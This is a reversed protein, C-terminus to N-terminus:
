CSKTCSDILKPNIRHVSDISEDLLLQDGVDNAYLIVTLASYLGLFRAYRWTEADVKGYKELFLEHCSSPYFSWIVSLDISRNNIGVDGWDIIGTLQGNNFMLHRSYLDGHVLCKNENPLNIALGAEMERRFEQMDINLINSSIIKEVRDNLAAFTRKDTRDFVQTKAGIKLAHSEDIRHLQKLFHALPVISSNRDIDSLNAEYGAKGIIMRYGQFPYPYNSSAEGRFIPNPIEIDSMKQIQLLITNERELLAVAVKRRPFRFIIGKNVLYVKNDWGEGLSELHHIPKLSPFQEEICNIVLEDTIQIDAHWEESSM